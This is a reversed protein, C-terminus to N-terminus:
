LSFPVQFIKLCNVQVEFIFLICLEKLWSESWELIENQFFLKIIFDRYNRGPRLFDGCIKFSKSM